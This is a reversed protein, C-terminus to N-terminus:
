VWESAITRPPKGKDDERHICFEWGVLSFAGEWSLWLGLKEKFGKGEVNINWWFQVWRMGEEKVRM